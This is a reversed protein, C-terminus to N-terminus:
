YLTYLHPYGTSVIESSSEYRLLENYRALGSRHCVLDEITCCQSATPDFLEFNEIVDRVPTTYAVRGDSRRILMDIALATFLKTNSAMLVRTQRILR